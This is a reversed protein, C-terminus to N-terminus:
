HHAPAMANKVFFLTLLAFVAAQIIGVMVEFLVLPVPLFFPVFFIAIAIMVEGAFVNGFLRFSFSVLRALESFLDIIGIAFQLPSNFTVFKGIYSLFGLHSIGMFEIVTLSVLALALTVNLDATMGRLLSVFKEHGHEDMYFGISGVGPFLQILNAFLIFFFITALLPLLANAIKKDELTEAMYDRAGGIALEM